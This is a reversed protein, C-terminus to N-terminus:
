MEKEIQEQTRLCMGLPREADDIYGYFPISKKPFVSRYVPTKFLIYYVTSIVYVNIVKYGNKRGWEMTREYDYSGYAIFLKKNFKYLMNKKM